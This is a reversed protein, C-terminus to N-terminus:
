KLGASNEEAKAFFGQFGYIRQQPQQIAFESREALRTFVRFVEGVPGETIATALTTLCNPRKAANRPTVASNSAPRKWAIRPSFPAPLVVSNRASAPSACGVCPSIEIKPFDVCSAQRSM